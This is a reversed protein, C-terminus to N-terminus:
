AHLLLRGNRPVCRIFVENTAFAFAVGAEPLVGQSCQILAQPEPDASPWRWGQKDKFELWTWVDSQNLHKVLWARGGQGPVVKAIMADARETPFLLAIAESTQVTGTLGLQANGLISPIPVGQAAALASIRHGIM